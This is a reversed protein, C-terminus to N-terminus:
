LFVHNKRFSLINTTQYLNNKLVIQTLKEPQSHGQSLGSKVQDKRYEQKERETQINAKTLENM